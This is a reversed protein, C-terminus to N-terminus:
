ANTKDILSRWVPGDALHGYTRPRRLNTKMIVGDGALRRVVGGLARKTTPPEELGLAWLDDTFMTHHHLCYDYLWEYAYQAWDDGANASARAMGEDRGARAEAMRQERLWPCGSVHAPLKAGCTPCYLDSM